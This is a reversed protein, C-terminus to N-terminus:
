SNRLSECLAKYHEEDKIKITKLIFSVAHVVEEVDPFKQARSPNREHSYENILKLISQRENLEVNELFKDAKDKFEKGDPYRMYLYAEFFRRLINPLLYLLDYKSKGNSDHFEKIIKFLYNYESRYNKLVEPLDEICSYEEDEILIKKILYLNCKKEGLGNRHSRRLDKLLNFFDFNHTTIFLQGCNKLKENIFAYVKFIHNSDLSSVPDDIFVVADNFNFNTEELRAFFYVLSIINREGASLNQAIDNNRYLKYKGNDTLKVKLKDSYFFLKLYINIKDAGISESKIKKNISEEREELSSIKSNLEKIDDELKQIKDKEEIYKKEKIFEVTYHNILASKAKKKEEEISEVKAKHENIIDKIKKISRELESTNDAFEKLELRDFPNKRKRNLEEKLSKLTSVYDNKLTGLSILSNEFEDQLDEFLRAKDPFSIGEIEEIHNQIEIGKSSINDLINDLEKTFHKELREFLDPPLKNGCFQCVEENKHLNIGERVWSSLEPNEKLKIIIKQASIKQNVISKVELIYNPLDLQPFYFEINDLKKSEYINRKKEIENNNLIYNQYSDKIFNIKEDLKNKDFEKPNTIRLITRIESAKSTCSNDLSNEAIDKQKVSKKVLEEKGKKEEVIGEIKKHLDKIEKGLILVPDIEANKNDWDFNEETFEDNFSRIPYDKSIDLQNIDGNDTEIVFEIYPYNPHKTKKELYRFIRSLSTKGSYNWGYFFNYRLFKPCNINWKFDRFTALNKIKKIKKIYM